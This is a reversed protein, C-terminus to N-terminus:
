EDAPKFNLFDFDNQALTIIKRTENDNSDVRILKDCNQEWLNENVLNRIVFEASDSSKIKNCSKKFIKSFMFRISDVFGIIM